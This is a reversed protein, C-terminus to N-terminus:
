VINSYRHLTVSIVTRIAISTANMCCVINQTSTNVDQEVYSQLIMVSDVPQFLLM